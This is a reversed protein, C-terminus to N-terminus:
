VIPRGLCLVYVRMTHDAPRGVKSDCRPFVCRVADLVGTRTTYHLTINAALWGRM